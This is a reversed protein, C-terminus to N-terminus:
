KIKLDACKLIRMLWKVWNGSNITFGLQIKLTMLWMCICLVTFLAIACYVDMVNTNKKDFCCLCVDSILMMIYGTLELMRVDFTFHVVEPFGV